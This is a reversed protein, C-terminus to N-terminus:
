PAKKNKLLEAKLSDEAAQKNKGLAKYVLSREAYASFENPNKSIAYDLDSFALDFRGMLLHQHARGIYYYIYAPALEIAHNIDKMGNEDDFRNFHVMARQFYADALDPMLELCSNLDSEAKEFDLFPFSNSADATLGRPTFFRSRLLARYYWAM